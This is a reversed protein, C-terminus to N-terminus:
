GPEGRGADGRPHSPDAVPERQWRTRIEGAFAVKPSWRTEQYAVRSTPCRRLPDLARKEDSQADRAATEDSNTSTKRDCTVALEPPRYLAKNPVFHPLRCRRSPGLHGALLEPQAVHNVHRVRNSPVKPVRAVLSTSLACGPSHVSSTPILHWPIHVRASWIGRPLPYVLRGFRCSNTDM